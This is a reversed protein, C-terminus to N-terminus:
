RVPPAIPAGIKRLEDMLQARRTPSIETKLQDELQARYQVNGASVYANGLKGLEDGKGRLLSEPAIGIDKIAAAAKSMAEQGKTGGAVGLLGLSALAGMIGPTAGGKIYSPIKAPRTFEGGAKAGEVPVKPGQKAFSYESKVTEYPVNTKGYQEEWAMQTNPGEQGYLWNYGGPGVGGKPKAYQGRMGPEGPIEGSAAAIQEKTRRIRPSKDEPTNVEAAAVDVPKPPAVAAEPVSPTIPAPLNGVDQWTKGSTPLPGQAIPVAVVPAEVPAVPPAVPGAVPAAAVPPAVPLGAARAAVDAPTLNVPAPVAGPATPQVVKSLKDKLQQARLEAFDAEAAAKRIRAEMLPDPGVPGNPQTEALATPLNQKAVQAEYAATKREEMKTKARNAAIDSIKSGAYLGAAGAAVAAVAKPNEEIFGLVPLNENKAETNPELSRQKMNESYNQYWSQQEPDDSQKFAQLIEQPAYGADMAEAIREQITPM